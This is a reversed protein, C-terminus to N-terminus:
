SIWLCKSIHRQWAEATKNFFITENLEECLLPKDSFRLLKCLGELQGLSFKQADGAMKHSQPSCESHKNIASIVFSKKTARSVLLCVSLM